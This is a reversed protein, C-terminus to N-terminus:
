TDIESHINPSIIEYKSQWRTLIHAHVPRLQAKGAAFIYCDGITKIKELRYNDVLMDFYSFVDNLLEVLEVPTLLASIPTFSVIEAFLISV